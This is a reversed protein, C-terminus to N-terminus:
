WMIIVAGPSGKVKREKCYKLSNDDMFQKLVKPPLKQFDGDDVTLTVDTPETYNDDCLPNNISVAPESILQPMTITYYANDFYLNRLTLANMQPVDTLYFYTGKGGYGPCWPHEPNDCGKLGGQYKAANVRSVYNLDKYGVKAKELSQKPIPLQSSLIDFVMKGVNGFIKGSSAKIVSTTIDQPDELVYTINGEDAEKMYKAPKLYLKKDLHEYIISRQKGSEGGLVSTSDGAVGSYAWKLMRPDTNNPDNPKPYYIRATVAGTGEKISCNKAGANEIGMDAGYGMRSDKTFNLASCSNGECSADTRRVDPYHWLGANVQTDFCVDNDVVTSPIGWHDTEYLCDTHGLLTAATAPHIKVSKSAGNGSISFELEQYNNVERIEGTIPHYLYNNPAQIEVNRNLAYILPVTTRGGYGTNLGSVHHFFWCKDPQNSKNVAQGLTENFFPGDIPGDCKKTSSLCDCYDTPRPRYVCFGNGGNQVGSEFIYKAVLTNRKVGTSWQDLITRLPEDIYQPRGSDTTLHADRIDAQFNGDVRIYGSQIGDGGTPDGIGFKVNDRQTAAGPTLGAGAGVVIIEFFDAKPPVFTCYDEGPAVGGTASNRGSSDTQYYTLKWDKADGNDDFGTPEYYCEAIGHSVTNRPFRVKKMGVVPVMAAAILMTILMTIVMEAITFGSAFKIFNKMASDEKNVYWTGM